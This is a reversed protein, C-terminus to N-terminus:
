TESPVPLAVNFNASDKASFVGDQHIGIMSETPVSAIGRINTPTPTRDSRYLGSKVRDTTVSIADTDSIIGNQVIKFIGKLPETSTPGSWIMGKSRQKVTMQGVTTGGIPSLAFEYRWTNSDSKDTM